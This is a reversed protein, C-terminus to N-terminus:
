EVGALLRQGHPASLVGRSTALDFRFAGQHSRLTTAVSGALFGSALDAVRGSCSGAAYYLRLWQSTTLILATFHLWSFCTRPLPLSNDRTPGCCRYTGAARRNGRRTFARLFVMRDCSMQGSLLM